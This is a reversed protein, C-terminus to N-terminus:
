QPQWWPKMSSQKVQGYIEEFTGTGFKEDISTIIDELMKSNELKGDQTTPITLSFGPYSKGEEKEAFDMVIKLSLDEPDFTMNTMKREIGGINVSPVQDSFEYRGGGTGYGSDDGFPDEEDIQIDSELMEGPTEAPENKMEQIVEEEEPAQMKKWAEVADNIYAEKVAKLEYSKGLVDEKTRMYNPNKSRQSEVYSRAADDLVADEELLDEMYARVDEESGMVDPAYSQAIIEAGTTPPREQIDAQFVNMDLNMHDVVNGNEDKFVPQGNEFEVTAHSKTDLKTLREMMEKHDTMVRRDSFDYKGEADRASSAMFTPSEVGDSPTGYTQTYYKEFDSTMTLLRDVLANFEAEGEPSEAFKKIVNPDSLHAAYDNVMEYHSDYMTSKEPAEVKQSMELLKERDAKAKKEQKERQAAAQKKLSEQEAIKDAQAQALSQASLEKFESLPKEFGPTERKTVNARVGRTSISM